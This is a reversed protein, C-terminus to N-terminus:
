EEEKKKMIKKEGFANELSPLASEKLEICFLPISRQGAVGAM